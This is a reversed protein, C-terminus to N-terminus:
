VFGEGMSCISNEQYNVMGESITSRSRSSSLKIWSVCDMAFNLSSNIGEMRGAEIQNGVIM